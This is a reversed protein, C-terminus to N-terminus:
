FCTTPHIIFRSNPVNKLKTQPFVAQRVLSFQITSPATEALRATMRVAECRGVVYKQRPM